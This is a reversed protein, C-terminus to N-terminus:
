ESNLSDLFDRAGTLGPDLELATKLLERAEAIGQETRSLLRALLFLVEPNKPDLRLCERFSAIADEIKQALELTVALNLQARLQGPMIELSRRFAKIAKTLERNERYAIGLNLFAEDYDKKLEVAKELAAIAEPIKKQNLYVLGLTYHLIAAKPHLKIGNLLVRSAQDYEKVQLYSQGLFGHWAPEHPEEEVAQRLVRIREQIMQPPLRLADDVMRNVDKRLAYINDAIPDPWSSDFANPADAQQAFANAQEANGLRSHIQSALRLAEKRQPDAKLVVQVLRLAEDLHNEMLRIRALLLSARPNGPDEKLVSELEVECADYDGEDFLVEALKCRVFTTEAETLGLSHRLLSIAQANQGSGLSLAQSYFWEYNSPELEAAVAFCEYAAEPFHHALCARGLLGWASPDEPDLRVSEKCSEFVKQARKSLLGTDVEPIRRVLEDHKSNRSFLFWAGIGAVILVLVMGTILTSKGARMNRNKRKSESRM